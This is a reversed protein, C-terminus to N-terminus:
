VHARGIKVVGVALQPDEIQDSFTIGDTEAFTTKIAPVFAEKRGSPITLSGKLRAKLRNNEIEFYSEASLSLFFGNLDALEYDYTQGFPIKLSPDLKLSTIPYWNGPVDITLGKTVSGPKGVPKGKGPTPAATVARVQIPSKWRLGTQIAVEEYGEKRLSGLDVINGEGAPFSASLRIAEYSIEVTGGTHKDAYLKDGKANVKTEKLSSELKGRAVLTTEPAQKSKGSKLTRVVFNEFHVPVSFKLPADMMLIGDGTFHDPDPNSIKKLQIMQGCLWIQGLASLSKPKAETAVVVIASDHPPVTGYQFACVPSKGDNLFNTKGSIDRAQVRWAYKKGPILQPQVVSYLFTSTKLGKVEVGSKPLVIADIFVNPDVTELPLEVIRLTYDVMAPSVGIPPTWTFILNQPTLPQVDSDCLPAILIPPEVSKVPFPPSCGLPNEPSLPRSTANDFARVCLQYTGEPLPLGKYLNGRDVGQVDIQSLDFLGSLDAYSLLRNQFPELTLPQPPRYNPLTQIVVGNDGTVSGQLRVNLRNATTNRVFVQVQKGAGAYDQLYASYPPLVSITVQVDNQAVATQAFFSLVSVCLMCLYRSVSGVFGLQSQTETNLYNSLSAM